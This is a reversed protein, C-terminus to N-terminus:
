LSFSLLPVAASVEHRWLGATAAEEAADDQRVVSPGVTTAAASGAGTPVTPEARRPPRVRAPPRMALRRATAGGFLGDGLGGRASSSGLVKQARAWDCIRGSVVCAAWAAIEKVASASAPSPQCWTRGARTSFGAGPRRAGRGSGRHVGAGVGPRPPEAAPTGSPSNTCASGHASPGSNASWSKTSETGAASARRTPV